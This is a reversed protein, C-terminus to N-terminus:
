GTFRITAGKGTIALVRFSLGNKRNARIEGEGGEGLYVTSGGARVMVLEQNIEQNFISRVFRKAVYVRSFGYRSPNVRFSVPKRFTFQCRGDYCGRYGPTASAAAPAAAVVPTVLMACALTLGSLAKALAKGRM